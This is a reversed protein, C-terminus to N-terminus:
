EGELYGVSEGLKLLEEGSECVVEMGNLYALRGSLGGFVVRWAHLMQRNVNYRRNVTIDGYKPDGIIPSGVSQLHARIQHSRGTVLTIELVTVGDKYALPRVKTVSEKANMVDAGTIVAKNRQRDKVHGGTLTMERDILGHVAALYYKEVARERIAASLERAATLTKALIVIGTTNRDLRNVAVPRFAANKVYYSAAEVIDPHTLAGAPKNIILVHEDEFLVNLSMGAAPPCHGIKHNDASLELQTEPAIYLTVRDGEKLIEAGYARNGNLKVRKKRIVKYVFGKGGAPFRRILFKDFRQGSEDESIYVDNDM